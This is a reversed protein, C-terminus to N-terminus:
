RLWPSTPQNMRTSCGFELRQGEENARTTGGAAPITYGAQKLQQEAGEPDYVIHEVGDYYAWSGPFIPGDAIIAQGDRLQNIMGQRNLGKLLARRVSIDQFFPVEPNDLNLFIMALRPLRSSYLSLNPAELAASLVDNTIESVGLV